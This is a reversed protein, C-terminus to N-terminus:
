FNPSLDKVAEAVVQNVELVDADHLRMAHRLLAAYATPDSRRLRDLMAVDDEPLGLNAVEDTSDDDCGGSLTDRIADVRVAVDRTSGRMESYFADSWERVTTRVTTDVMEKLAVMRAVGGEVSARVTVALADVRDSLAQM